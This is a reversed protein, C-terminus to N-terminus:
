ERRLVAARSLLHERWNESLLKVAGLAENAAADHKGRYFIDNARAIPWDPCPRAILTLEQGAQVTGPQVVRFYWGTRGTEIVVAPLEKIRWRRALKWCPQRPQSVEVTATGISYQDGICITAENLGNITFNEGFAGYPLDPLELAGRWSPYHEAAYCCIAKDPGGHNELDAQEDCALNTWDLQVPTTIAEKFFGSIWPKDM